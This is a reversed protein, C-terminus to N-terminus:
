VLEFNFVVNKTTVEIPLFRINIPSLKNKSIIFINSLISKKDTNPIKSYLGTVFKKFLALLKSNYNPDNKLPINMIIKELCVASNSFIFRCSIENYFWNEPYLTTVFPNVLYMTLITDIIRICNKYMLHLCLTEKLMEM